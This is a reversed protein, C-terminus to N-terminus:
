ALCSFTLERSICIALLIELEYMKKKRTIKIEVEDPPSIAHVYSRVNSESNGKNVPFAIV